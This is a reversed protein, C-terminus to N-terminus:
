HYMLVHMLNLYFLLVHLSPTYNHSRALSYLMEQYKGDSTFGSNKTEYKYESYNEDEKRIASNLLELRKAKSKLYNWDLMKSPKKGAEDEQVDFNNESSSDKFYSPLTSSDQPRSSSSSPSEELYSPLSSLDQHNDSTDTSEDETNDDDQDTVTSSDPQNDKGHEKSSTKEHGRRFLITDLDMPCFDCMM